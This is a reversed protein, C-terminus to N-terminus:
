EPLESCWYDAKTKVCQEIRYEKIPTQLKYCTIGSILWYGDPRVLDTYREPEECQWGDRFDVIIIKDPERYITKYIIKNPSKVEVVPSGISMGVVFSIVLLLSGVIIHEIKIQM